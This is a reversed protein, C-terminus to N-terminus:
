GHRHEFDNMFSVLALVGEYPMANYLSARFGGVSRHGELNVLGAERSEKLFLAELEPRALTFPINMRSRSGIAVPNSYLASQDLTAYLLGSKKLSLSEMAEVGGQAELWELVLGLLYWPYTPPTNLMSGNKAQIAYDMVSPTATRPHGLLDDRVIVVTIGSPGMNKQAGAYIVGFRSVDLKRSLINSSMDCVLPVNGADPISPFEVGGITENDTYHFYDVPGTEIWEGAAPVRNFEVTETSAAIVVESLYRQAEAIAKTSWIGTNVYAARQHPGSLNLPVASFQATAGGQLFLVRYNKPVALLERLHSEAKEAVEVYLDSRHSMEMISMGSGGFDILENRARELVELPLASPGASFNHVRM